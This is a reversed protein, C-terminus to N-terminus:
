NRTLKFQGKTGAETWTGTIFRRYAGINELTGDIVIPVLTGSADKREAEFRVIWASPKSSDIAVKRITAANPGPNIIGTVDKGDWDLNMLLRVQQAGATREGSWSGKLPHGYQALAAAPLALLVALLPYRLM